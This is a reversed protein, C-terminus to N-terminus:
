IEPEKQIIKKSPFNFVNDVQKQPTNQPLIDLKVSGIAQKIKFSEEVDDVEVCNLYEFDEQSKISFRQKDKTQSAFTPLQVMGQNSRSGRHSQELKEATQRYTDKIHLARYICNWINSEHFKLNEVCRADEAEDIRGFKSNMEELMEIFYLVIM